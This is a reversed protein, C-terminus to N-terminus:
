NSLFPRDLLQCTSWGMFLPVQDQMKGHLWYALKQLKAAFGLASGYLLPRLDECCNSGVIGSDKTRITIKIILQVFKFSEM